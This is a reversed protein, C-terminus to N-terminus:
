NSRCKSQFIIRVFGNGGAGSAAYYTAGSGPDFIAAGGGGGSGPQTGPQGPYVGAFVNQSFRAAFGGQSGLPSGGGAGGRGLYATFSAPGGGEGAGGIFNITGGTATGGKGGANDPGSASGGQGGNAVLAINSGRFSSLNGSNGNGSIAVAAGGSGVQIQFIKKKTVTVNAEVYGGAGGGAGGAFNGQGAPDFPISGSGGAGFVQVWVNTVDPPFVCRMPGSTPNSFTRVIYQPTKYKKVNRQKLESFCLMCIKKKPTKGKNLPVNVVVDVFLQICGRLNAGQWM